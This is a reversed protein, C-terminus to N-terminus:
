RRAFSRRCLREVKTWLTVVEPCEMFVERSLRMLIGLAEQDAKPNTQDILFMRSDVLYEVAHGLSELARGQQLSGRRRVPRAATASAKPAIEPAPAASHELPGTLPPAFPPM